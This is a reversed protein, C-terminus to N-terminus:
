GTGARWSTRGAARAQELPYACSAAYAALHPDTARRFALYAALPSVAADDLAPDRLGERGAHRVPGNVRPAPRRDDDTEGAPVDAGALAPVPTTALSRASVMGLEELEACHAEFEARARERDPAGVDEHSPTHLSASLRRLSYHLAQELLLLRPHHVVRAHRDPSLGYRLLGVLSQATVLVRLFSHEVRPPHAYYLVPHTEHMETLEVLELGLERLREALEAEYGGARTLYRRVLPLAGAQGAAEADLTVALGHTRSLAPYVALLYAVSLSIVIFGSAAEAIALARFLDHVAQFDGYGVTTLSAGSFYLAETWSGTAGDPIQFYTPDGLWPHYLLAFGVLLLLVWLAILGAILLPLGWSLARHRRPGPALGAVLRLLRWALRHFRNSLPSELQPHLVTAVIDLLTLAILAVGAAASVLATPSM